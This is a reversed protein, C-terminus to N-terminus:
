FIGKRRGHIDKLDILWQYRGVSPESLDFDVNAADHLDILIKPAIISNNDHIKSSFNIKIEEICTKKTKNDAFELPEDFLESPFDEIENTSNFNEIISSKSQTVKTLPSSSPDQDKKAGFFNLISAQKPKPSGNMFSSRSSKIIDQGAMKTEKCPAM